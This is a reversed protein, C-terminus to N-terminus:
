EDLKYRGGVKSAYDSKQLLERLDSKSPVSKRELDQQIGGVKKGVNPDLVSKIDIQSWNDVM